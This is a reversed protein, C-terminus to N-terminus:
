SEGYRKREYMELARLIESQVDQNPSHIHFTNYNTVSRTSSSSVAGQNPSMIGKLAEGLFLPAFQGASGRMTKAISEKDIIMDGKKFSLPAVGSTRMIADNASPITLRASAMQKEADQSFRREGLEKRIDAMPQGQQMRQVVEIRIDEPVAPIMESLRTVEKAKYIGTLTKVIESEDIPIGKSKAINMFDQLTKSQDKAYEGAVEQLEKSHKQLLYSGKNDKIMRAYSELSGDSLKMMKDRFDAHESGDVSHVAEITRKDSVERTSREIYGARDDEYGGGMSQLKTVVWSPGTAMYKAAEGAVSGVMEGLGSAVLVETFEGVRKAREMINQRELQDAKKHAGEVTMGTGAEADKTRQEQFKSRNELADRQGQLDAKLKTDGSESAQRIAKNLSSLRKETEAEETRRQSLLREQDTVKDGLLKRLFNSAMATYTGISTLTDWVKLELINAVSQTAEVQREATSKQDELGKTMEKIRDESLNETASAFDTILRKSEKGLLGDTTIEFDGLNEKYKAIFAEQQEQTALLGKKSLDKFAETAETVAGRVPSVKWKLHEVMEASYKSANSLIELDGTALSQKTAREAGTIVDEAMILNTLADFNRHVGKFALDDQSQIIPQIETFVLKRARENGVALHSIKEFEKTTLKSISEFLQKDTDIDRKGIQALLSRVIEKDDTPAREFQRRLLNVTYNQLARESKDGSTAMATRSLYDSDSLSKAGTTLSQVFKQANKPDLYKNMEALLVTTNELRLNYLSLEGAIQSVTSFFAKTSMGSRRAEATIGALQEQIQPLEKGHVATMTGIFEAAENLSIGLNRSTVSAMQMVAKQAQGFSQYGKSLRNIGAHHSELASLVEMHEKPALGWRINFGSDSATDRIEKLRDVALAANGEGLKYLSVTDTLAKNLDIVHSESDIFLKVLLAVGGAAIALPGLLKILSGLGKTVKGLSGVVQTPDGVGGKDKGSKIWRSEKAKQMMKSFPVSFASALASGASTAIGPFDRKFYADIGKGLAGAVKTPAEKQLQSVKARGDIIEEKFAKSQASIGDVAKQTNAQIRKHEEKFFKEKLDAEKKLGDRVSKTEAQYERQRTILYDQELKILRETEKGLKEVGKLSQKFPEGFKGASKISKGVIDHLKEVDKVADAFNMSQKKSFDEAERMMQKHMKHLHKGVKDVGSLLTKFSKDDTEIGFVLKTEDQSM